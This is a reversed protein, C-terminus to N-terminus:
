LRVRSRRIRVLHNPRRSSSQSAAPRAFHAGPQQRPGLFVKCMRIGNAYVCVCVCFMRVCSRVRVVIMCRISVSKMNQREAITARRAGSAGFDFVASPAAAATASTATGYVALHSINIHGGYQTGPSRAFYTYDVFQPPLGGCVRVPRGVYALYPWCVCNCTGSTM